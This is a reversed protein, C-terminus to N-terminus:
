RAMPTLGGPLAVLRPGRIRSPGAPVGSHHTSREPLGLNEM